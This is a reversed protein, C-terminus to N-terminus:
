IVTTLTSIHDVNDNYFAYGEIVKLNSPLTIQTITDVNYYAGYHIVLTNTLTMETLETPVYADVYQTANYYQRIEHMGEQPESTFGFLYGLVKNSGDYTLSKDTYDCPFTNIDGVFPTILNNLNICRGFVKYGVSYVNDPVVIQTASSCNYFAVSGLRMVTDLITIVNEDGVELGEENLYTMTTLSCCDYFVGENIAELERTKFLVNNLVDCKEFAYDGMEEVNETIIITPLSTCNRFAGSGITTTSVPFQNIYSGDALTEGDTVVTLSTCNEFASSGIKVFPKQDAADTVVPHPAYGYGMPLIVTELKSVNIFANDGITDVDTVTVKTLKTPVLHTRTNQRVEYLASPTNITHGVIVGGFIWGFTTANSNQNDERDQGVFPITMEALNHCGGFAAYEI